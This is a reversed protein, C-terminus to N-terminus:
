VLFYRLEGFAQVVHHMEELSVYRHLVFGGGGRVRIADLHHGVRCAVAVLVDWGSAVPAITCGSFGLCFVM